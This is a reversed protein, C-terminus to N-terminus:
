RHCGFPRCGAIDTGAVMDPVLIEAAQENFRKAIKAVARQRVQARVAKGVDVGHVGRHQAPDVLAAGMDTVNGRAHPDGLLSRRLQNGAGFRQTVDGRGGIRM